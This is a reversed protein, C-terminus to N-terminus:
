SGKSSAPQLNLPDKRTLPNLVNGSLEDLLYLVKGLVTVARMRLPSWGGHSSFLANAQVRDVKVGSEVAMMFSRLDDNSLLKTTTREVYATEWPDLKKLVFCGGAKHLDHLLIGLLIRSDTLIPAERFEVRVAKLGEWLDWMELLHSVLGGEFAHHNRKAAPARKFGLVLGEVAQWDKELRDMMGLLVGPQKGKERVLDQLRGWNEELGM